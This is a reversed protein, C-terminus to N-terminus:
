LDLNGHGSFGALVTCSVCFWQVGTEVKNPQKMVLINPMTQTRHTGM